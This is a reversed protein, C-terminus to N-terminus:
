EGWIMEVWEPHDIFPNRNGQYNHFIVHNRKREWNDVPDDLHWQLLTGLKGIVPLNNGNAVISDAIELDYGPGEYRVAMYFIMRAIDGKVEDPPEWCYHPAGSTLSPTEVMGGNDFYVDFCFDFSRTSRASNVSRDAPRLHHLDTYATDAEDPFGHSKPWVHERNWSDMLTYGHADYNFTTGRDRHVAPQSRLTYLLVVNDPRTHDRDTEALADWVADYSLHTHSRITLHLQQKLAMGSLGKTGSYYGPPVQGVGFIVAKTTTTTPETVPLSGSHILVMTRYLWGSLGPEIQVHYYGNTQNGNDLLPLKEGKSAQYIISANSAPQAKIRVNRRMEAYDACLATCTLMFILTFSYYKM